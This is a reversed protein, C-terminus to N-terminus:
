KKVKSGLRNKKTVTLNQYFFTCQLLIRHEKDLHIM